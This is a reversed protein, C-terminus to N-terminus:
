RETDFLSLQHPDPAAPTTKYRTAILRIAQEYAFASRVEVWLSPCERILDDLIRGPPDYRSRRRCARDIADFFRRNLEKTM